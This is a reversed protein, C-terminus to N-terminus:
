PSLNLGQASTLDVSLDGRKTYVATMVLEVHELHRIACDKRNVNIKVTVFKEKTLERLYLYFVCLDM